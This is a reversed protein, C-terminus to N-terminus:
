KELKFVSMVKTDKIKLSYVENKFKYNALRSRFTGLFYDADEIKSVVNIKDAEMFKVDSNIPYGLDAYINIKKSTDANVIYNIGSNFTLGWYDLEYKYKIDSLDNIILPNFYLNQYPHLQLMKVINFNLIIFTLLYFGWKIKANNLLSKLYVWGSISIIIFCPYIFYVHRWGDYIVSNLSVILLIPSIFLLFLFPFIGYSASHSSKNVLFGWAGVVFLFSFMFPTSILLWTIIYYFPLEDGYILDGMFLIKGKWPYHSMEDVVAVFQSIPNISWLKPWFLIIFVFCFLVYIFIKFTETKWYYYVFWIFSFLPIFVGVIRIDVILGCALAHFIIKYISFDNITVIFTYIGLIYFSMLTIDKSNVFIEPFIKPSIVLFMCSLLAIKWCKFIRKSLFYFCIVSSYYLIFNMLHRILFTERYSIGGLIKECVKETVFLPFEIVPGYGLIWEYKGLDYESFFNVIYNYYKEGILRMAESDWHLGFDDFVNLGILFFSVFCASVIIKENKLIKKIM